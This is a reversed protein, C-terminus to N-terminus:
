SSTSAARWTAADMQHHLREGAARNGVQDHNQLCVIARQM